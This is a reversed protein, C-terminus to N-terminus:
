SFNILKLSVCYNFTVLYDFVHIVAGALGEDRHRAYVDQSSAVHPEPATDAYTVRCRTRVQYWRLYADYRQDTHPGTPQVVNEDAVDWADVWEQM